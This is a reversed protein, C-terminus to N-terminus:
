KRAKLEALKNCLKGNKLGTLIKTHNTGIASISSMNNTHHICELIEQVRHFYAKTSEDTGQQLMNYVKIVYTDYPIESYNSTLHQKLTSWSLTRGSNTEKGELHNASKLPAGQLKSLPISLADLNCLRAANEMSQAWATFEAKNTGNFIKISNLMSQQLPQTQLGLIQSQM